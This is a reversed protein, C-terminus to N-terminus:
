AVIVSESPYQYKTATRRKAFALALTVIGVRGIFMSVIIISKGATTLEGTIGRSLGVTAFASFEEFLLDIFPQDETITLLFTFFFLCVAALIFVTMATFVTDKAIKKKAFEVDRKGTITSWASLLLVSVTTTKIGGATSAPSAGIIMLTLFVLTTSTGLGGIDVTNFGATRTTVSQFLSLLIKDSTQYGSLVGNWELVLFAVTGVTILIGTAWLVLRTHISFKWNRLRHHPNGKILEWLTTFGLGGTIILIMTTINIGYNLANVQDALSNTFVSFGANCFASVAHFMSFFLRTSNDDFLDHWSLYYGLAGCAEILLTIGVIRKITQFTESTRTEGVTGKLLTMQGVGLGSSVFLAFLTAITLLGLGGVQILIMVIVQGFMTLHTATDVVILGTVCVASTSTFLADILDLGQGDVTARPTMLLLAGVAIVSLFSGAVVQTPKRKLSLLIPAARISREIILLILYIKTALILIPWIEKGGFLTAVYELFDQGGILYSIGILALSSILITEFIRSRVLQIRKSTLFLRLFYSLSFGLIITLELYNNWRKYPAQLEFGEAAVLSAIALLVLLLNFSHVFPEVVKNLDYLEVEVDQFRNRFQKRSKKFRVLFNIYTRRWQKPLKM